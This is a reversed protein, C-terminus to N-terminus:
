NRSSLVACRELLYVDENEEVHSGSIECFIMLNKRNLGLILRPTFRKM